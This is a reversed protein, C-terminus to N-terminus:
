NLVEVEFTVWFDHLIQEPDGVLATWFLESFDSDLFVATWFRRGFFIEPTWFVDGFVAIWFFPRFDNWFTISCM